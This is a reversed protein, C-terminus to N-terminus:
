KVQQLIWESMEKLAVPSFTQEITEYETLSGTECEQFLHNLNPLEKVVVNKNGGKMLAERIAALNEKPTVQIDKEGNLALVPCTVKELTSAPNYNLLDQYWPSSLMDSQIAIVQEKTLKTPHLIAPIDDYNEEILNALDAKLTERDVSTAIMQFAKESIAISKQVDSESAGLSRPILEQQMMLLKRVEIGPGALLVIFHVDKSNSAVMPAVIAGESHGILGIKDKNTEARTKLYAVASAADAAFDVTTAARFDGTSKAVGRDDYRLVAIGNRTLHDAIILFPKHRAIEEDRNQAGSGSILIISPFNGEKSPLTLTGALTVNAQTNEFTVEETYYPYPKKPEQPRQITPNYIFFVVVAILLVTMTGIITLLMGKVRM